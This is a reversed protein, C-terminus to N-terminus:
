FSFTTRLTGIFIDGNQSDQDPATLWIFGPTIALNDNVRLQYFGEVHISSDRDRDGLGFPGLDVSSGTVKPEMGVIIGGLNGPLLLDPFGLTVAWNWISLDGRDIRGDLTSLTRTTTYGTWGGLVFRRSLWWSFELGYSNSVVPVESGLGLRDETFSRFNARTSGTESDM